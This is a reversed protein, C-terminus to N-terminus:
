VRAMREVIHPGMDELPLIESCIGAKAVAGPMGWVVSTEENQALVTGGQAVVQKCGQLGDSGMGTLIVALVRAGYVASLSRMMPDVAPKCFSEQPGDDLRIAVTREDKRTFLMHYGGQAVYVHGPALAMDDMAEHAPINCSNAIQRAMVATFTRPMHQTVVIPVRLGRLHPLVKMLAQPGGTSSGIALIAPSQTATRKLLVPPTAPTLLSKASREQAAPKRSPKHRGLLKVLEVLRNKFDDMSHLGQISSPKLICDAAGMEMARISIEAGRESLSSCVLVKLDPKARLMHPLAELGNMVPMEVDLIVIDPHLRKVAEIGQQGDVAKGVVEIGEEARLITSIVNRIVASDDVLVVHINDPSPETAM